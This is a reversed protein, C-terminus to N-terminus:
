GIGKINTWLATRPARRGALSPLLQDILGLATALDLLLAHPGAESVEADTSGQPQVDGPWNTYSWGALGQNGGYEPPGYMAELTNAMAAGVFTQVDGDSLDGLVGQQQTRSLSIFDDKGKKQARADLLALGDRYIQQLGTM